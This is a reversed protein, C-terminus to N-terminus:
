GEGRGPGGWRGGPGGGWQPEIGRETMRQRIAGFYAMRRATEDPSRSESREKRQQPNDGGQWQRMRERWAEQNHEQGEQGEQKRQERQERWRQMQEQFQDIHRDLVANKDEATAAFYESVREDMMSRFVEGMNQRVQLRQEDTLDQRDQLQRMTERLQDPQTSKAKLAALSLEEPLGAQTDKSSSAQWAWTLGGVVILGLVTSLVLIRRKSIM